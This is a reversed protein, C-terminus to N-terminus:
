CRGGFTLQKLSFPEGPELIYRGKFSENRCDLVSYDPALDRICFKGTSYVQCRTLTAGNVDYKNGSHSSFVDRQKTLNKSKTVVGYRTVFASEMWELQDFNIAAKLVDLSPFEPLPPYGYYIPPLLSHVILVDASATPGISPFPQTGVMVVSDPTKTVVYDIVGQPDDFSAPKQGAILFGNSLHLGCEEQPSFTPVGFFGGTYITWCPGLNVVGPMDILNSYTTTQNYIEWRPFINREPLPSGNGAALIQNEGVYFGGIQEFGVFYNITIRKLARCLCGDGFM